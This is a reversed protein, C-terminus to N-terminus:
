TSLIAMEKTFEDNDDISKIEMFKDTLKNMKNSSLTAIDSESQKANVIIDSLRTREEIVLLSSKKIIPDKIAKKLKRAKIDKQVVGDIDKYIFVDRNRDTCHYSKSEADSNTIYQSTFRAVGVLGEEVHELKFNDKVKEEIIEPRWDSVLLNQTKNTTKTNCINNIHNTPKSALLFMKEKYDEVENRLEEITQLAVVLDKKTVELEKRLIQIDPSNSKCTKLHNDLTFKVTFSSGCFKCYHEESASKNQMILCYKATNQHKKLAGSTKLIQNCYECEM